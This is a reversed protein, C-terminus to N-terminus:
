PFLVVISSVRIPLSFFVNRSAGSVALIGSFTILLVLSSPWSRALVSTRDKDICPWVRWWM